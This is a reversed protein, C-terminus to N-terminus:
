YVSCNILISVKRTNLVHAIINEISSKPESIGASIFKKRWKSIVNSTRFEFQAGNNQKCKSYRDNASSTLPHLFTSVRTKLLKNRLLVVSLKNSIINLM